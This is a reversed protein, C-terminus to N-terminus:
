GNLACRLSILSPACGSEQFLIYNNIKPKEHVNEEKKKKKKKKRGGSIINNFRIVM